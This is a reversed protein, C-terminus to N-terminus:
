LRTHSRSLQGAALLSFRQVLLHDPNAEESLIRSQPLSDGSREAFVKRRPGDVLPVKVLQRSTRSDDSTMRSSRREALVCPSSSVTRRSISSILPTGECGGSTTRQSSSFRASIKRAMSCPASSLTM